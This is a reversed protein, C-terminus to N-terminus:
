RIYGVLYDTSVKFIEALKKLNAVSPENIDQEYAVIATRVLGLMDSLEEQTMNNAHRLEKIRSGLTKTSNDAYKRIRAITKKVKELEILVDEFSDSKEVCGQIDLERLLQLPPQLSSNGTLLVIFIEKNIGDGKRIRDIVKTGDTNDSYYDLLLVEYKNKSMDQIAEEADTFGTCDYGENDLYRVLTKVPGEDDDILVLKIKEDVSKIKSKKM